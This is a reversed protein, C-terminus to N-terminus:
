PGKLAILLVGANDNDQVMTRNNLLQDARAVESSKATRKDENSLRQRPILGRRM